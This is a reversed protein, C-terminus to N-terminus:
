RYLGSTEFDFLWHKIKRREYLFLLLTFVGFITAIFTPYPKLSEWAHFLYSKRYFDIVYTLAGILLWAVLCILFIM